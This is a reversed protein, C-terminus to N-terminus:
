VDRYLIMLAMLTRSFQDAPWYCCLKHNQSTSKPASERVAIAHRSYLIGGTEALRVLGM